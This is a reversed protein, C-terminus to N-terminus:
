GLFVSRVALKTAHRAPRWCACLAVLAIGAFAIGYTLPDTAGVGFLLSSVMQTLAIAATTGIALGLSVLVLAERTVLRWINKADAGLARRIAIEYTRHAAGYAVVGYVGSAALLLALLSFSVLLVTNL